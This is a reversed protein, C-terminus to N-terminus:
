ETTRQYVETKPHLAYQPLDHSEFVSKEPRRRAYDQDDLSQFIGSDRSCAFQLSVNLLNTLHELSCAAHLSAIYRPSILKTKSAGLDTSSQTLCACRKEEAATKTVGLKDDVDTCIKGSLHLYDPFLQAGVVIM